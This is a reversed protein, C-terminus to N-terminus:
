STFVFCPNVNANNALLKRETLHQKMKCVSGRLRHFEVKKMEAWKQGPDYSQM